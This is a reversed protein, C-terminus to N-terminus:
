RVYHRQLGAINYACACRGAYGGCGALEKFATINDFAGNLVQAREGIRQACAWGPKILGQLLLQDTTLCVAYPPWHIASLLFYVRCGCINLGRSGQGSRVQGSCQRPLRIAAPPNDIGAMVMSPKDNGSERFGTRPLSKLTM